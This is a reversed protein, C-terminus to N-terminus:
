MRKRLNGQEDYYYEGQKASDRGLKIEGSTTIKDFQYQPITTTNGVQKNSIQQQGKPESGISGVRQMVADIEETTRARFKPKGSDDVGDQIAMEDEALKIRHKMMELQLVSQAKEKELQIMAM